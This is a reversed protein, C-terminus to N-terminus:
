LGNFKAIKTMDAASLQGDSNHRNYTRSTPTLGAATTYGYGAIPEYDLYDDKNERRMARKFEEYAQRHGTENAQNDCTFRDRLTADLEYNYVLYRNHSGRKDLVIGVYGKGPRKSITTLLICEEKTLVSQRGHWWDSLSSM